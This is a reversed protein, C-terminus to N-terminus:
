SDRGRRDAYGITYLHTASGTSTAGIARIAQATSTMIDLVANHASGINGIPSTSTPDSTYFTPYLNVTGVATFGQVRAQVSLGLPVSALTLNIAGTSSVVTGNVDRQGVTNYLFLDGVQTFALWNSSGDTQRSGIRRYLTYNTPLLPSTANTSFVVDM